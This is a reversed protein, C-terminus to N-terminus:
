ERLRGKKGEKDLKGVKGVRGVKGVKGVKGVGVKGVKGVKGIQKFFGFVSTQLPPPSSWHYCPCLFKLSVLGKIDDKSTV